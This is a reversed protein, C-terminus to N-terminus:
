FRFLSFSVRVQSPREESSAPGLTFPSPGVTPDVATTLEEMNIEEKSRIVLYEM